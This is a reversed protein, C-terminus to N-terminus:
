QQINKEMNIIGFLSFSHFNIQIFFCFFSTGNWKIENLLMSKSNCNTKKKMMRRGRREREREKEQQNETEQTKKGTGICSPMNLSYM